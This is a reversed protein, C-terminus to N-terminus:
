HIDRSSFLYLVSWTFTLTSCSVTATSLVTLLNWSHSQLCIEAVEDIQKPTGPASRTNWMSKEIGSGNVNHVFHIIFSDLTSVKRVYVDISFNYLKHILYTTINLKSLLQSNPIRHCCLDTIVTILIGKRENGVTTLLYQGTAIQEYQHKTGKELKGWSHDLRM